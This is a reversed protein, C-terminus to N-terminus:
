TLLLRTTKDNFRPLPYSIMLKDNFSMIVRIFKSRRMDSNYELSQQCHKLRSLTYFCQKKYMCKEMKLYLVYLEQTNFM